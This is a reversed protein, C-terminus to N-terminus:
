RAFCSPTEREMVLFFDLFVFEAFKNKWSEERNKRARGCIEEFLCLLYPNHTKYFAGTKRRRM